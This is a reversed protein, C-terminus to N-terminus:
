GDAPAVQVRAPRNCVCIQAVEEYQDFLPRLRKISSRLSEHALELNVGQIPGTDKQSQIAEVAALAQRLSDRLARM